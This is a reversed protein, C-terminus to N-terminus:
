CDTKDDSVATEERALEAALAAGLHELHEFGRTELNDCESRLVGLVARHLRQVVRRPARAQEAVVGLLDVPDDDRERVEPVLPSDRVRDAARPESDGHEDM